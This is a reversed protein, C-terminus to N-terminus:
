PGFLSRQQPRNVKLCAPSFWIREKHANMNGSRNGYGGNAKWEVTEWGDPATFSGEYGCLAIRLRPDQGHDTAWKAVQSFIETGDSYVNAFGDYPPDLVIGTMGNGHIVSEGMIRSWDGSCVRVRRLRVQLAEFWAYIGAEHFGKIRAHSDGLDPSHAHSHVGMGVHRLYPIGIRVKVNGLDAGRAHADVGMGATHLYPVQVPVKVSHVGMSGTLSLESRTPDHDREGESRAANPHLCEGSRPGIRPVQEPAPGRDPVWGTGIWQSLGWVWWGAIKADFWEPDAMCQERVMPKRMILYRHKAHLDCENVPEDAHMAVTAPDARIARWFNAIMADADNVTEIKPETPRMLLIAASGLFPEIYNAVDGLRTWILDAAKRKGGFWPYPPRMHNTM